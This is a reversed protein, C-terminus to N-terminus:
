LPVYKSFGPPADLCKAVVIGIVDFEAEEGSSYRLFVDGNPQPIAYLNEPLAKFDALPM